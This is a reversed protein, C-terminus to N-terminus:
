SLFRPVEQAQGYSSSVAVMRIKKNGSFSTPDFHFDDPPPFMVLNERLFKGAEHKPDLYYKDYDWLFVAKPGLLRFFTKECTNM